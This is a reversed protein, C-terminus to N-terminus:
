EEIDQQAFAYRVIMGAALAAPAFILFPWAEGLVTGVVLMVIAVIVALVLCTRLLPGLYSWGVADVLAM